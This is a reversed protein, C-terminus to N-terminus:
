PNYLRFWEPDEPAFCYRKLNTFHLAEEKVAGNQSIYFTGDGLAAIGTSGWLFHSGFIRGGSRGEGIAASTLLMGTENGRGELATKKPSVGGDIAFMRFNEFDPKVGPYVATFWYGTFPDYELNQVGWTTNGTYFFYREECSEPGCHHPRLQSLPQGYVDFVSLDYQLLVQHDNDSRTTDRRIGEAVMIKRTSDAPEGFVPGVSVGDMGGCGFCGPLGSIPDTESYDAVVDRLYVARMVGDKEADMGMRNLKDLEFSVLYFADEEALAIGTREMIGRGISDHKLELSGYLRNKEKDFAICGLHGIINEVSAIPNGALDTKLLITTFSYYVFGRETDVGIGQVHGEKWNGSFITDPLKM